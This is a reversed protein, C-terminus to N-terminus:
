QALSTQISLILAFHELVAVANPLRILYTSLQLLEVLLNVLHSMEKNASMTDIKKHMKNMKETIADIKEM